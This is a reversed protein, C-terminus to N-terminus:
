VRPPPNPRRGKLAAPAHNRGEPTLFDDPVHAADLMAVIDTWPGTKPPLARSNAAQDRDTRGTMPHNTKRM